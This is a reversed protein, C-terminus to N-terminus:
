GCIRFLFTQFLDFPFESCFFFDPRFFFSSQFGFHSMQGFLDTRIQTRNFKSENFRCYTYNEQKLGIVTKTLTCRFAGLGALYSYFRDRPICVAGLDVQQPWPWTCRFVGAFWLRLPLCLRAFSLVFCHGYWPLIKAIFISSIQPRRVLTAPGAKLMDHGAFRFNCTM